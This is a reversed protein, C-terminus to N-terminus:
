AGSTAGSGRVRRMGGIPTFDITREVVVMM